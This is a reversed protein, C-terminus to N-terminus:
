TAEGRKVYMGVTSRSIDVVAEAIADNFDKFPFVNLKSTRSTNWVHFGNRLFLPRLASFYRKMQEYSYENNAIARPTRSEPFWYKKQRSMNFDCGVLYVNRFGLLFCLRIVVLLVSRGGGFEKANGWNISDKSLWTRADFKDNRRFAIVNPCEGVRVAALRGTEHNFIRSALNGVPVFKKITPDCWISSMFRYPADISAWLNPRFQQAGNNMGFTVIGPLRLRDSDIDLFSPGNCVVFVSSGLFMNTCEYPSGDARFCVPTRPNIDFPVAFSRLQGSENSKTDDSNLAYEDFRQYLKGRIVLKCEVLTSGLASKLAADLHTSSIFANFNDITVIEHGNAVISVSYEGPHDILLQCLRAEVQSRDKPWKVGRLELSLIQDTPDIM